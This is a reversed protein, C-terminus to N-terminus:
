YNAYKDYDRFTISLEPKSPGTYSVNQGCDGVCYNTYGIYIAKAVDEPLEPKKPKVNNVNVYNHFEWSWKFYADASSGYKNIPNKGLYVLAHNRCHECPIFNIKNTTNRIFASSDEITMVNLAEVHISFWLGPGFIKPDAIHRKASQLLLSRQGDM